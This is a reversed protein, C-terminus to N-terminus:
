SLYKTNGRLTSLISSMQQVTPGFRFGILMWVKLWLMLLTRVVVSHPSSPHYSNESFGHTKLTNPDTSVSNEGPLVERLELIASEVEKHSGYQTETHETVDEANRKLFTENRHGDTQPPPDCM